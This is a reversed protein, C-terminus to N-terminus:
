IAGLFGLQKRKVAAAEAAEARTTHLGCYYTKGAHGVAAQWKRRKRATGRTGDPINRHQSNGAANTVRLNERTCNLPDFDIHDCIEGAVLARGLKRSLVIRHPYVQTPKGNVKQSSQPYGRKLLYSLRVLDADEPSFRPYCRFQSKMTAPHPFTRARGAVTTRICLARFPLSGSCLPRHSYCPHIM